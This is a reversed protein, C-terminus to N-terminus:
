YQLTETHNKHITKLFFYFVVQKVRNLMPQAKLFKLKPEM